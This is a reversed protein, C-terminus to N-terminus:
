GIIPFWFIVKTKLIRSFMIEMKHSVLSVVDLQMRKCEPHLM